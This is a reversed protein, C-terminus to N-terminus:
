SRVGSRVKMAGFPCIRTTSWSLATIRATPVPPPPPPPLSGSQVFPVHEGPPPLRFVSQKRSNLLPMPLPERMVHLSPSGAHSRSAVGRWHVTATFSQKPTASGRSELHVGAPTVDTCTTFGFPPAAEATTLAIPAMCPALTPPPVFGTTLKEVGAVP